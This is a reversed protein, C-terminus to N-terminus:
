MLLTISANGEINNRPVIVHQWCASLLRSYQSSIRMGKM